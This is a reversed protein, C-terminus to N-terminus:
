LVHAMSMTRPSSVVIKNWGLCCIKDTNSQQQHMRHLWQLVLVFIM